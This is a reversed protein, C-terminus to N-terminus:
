LSEGNKDGRSVLAKSAVSRRHEENAKWLRSIFWLVPRLIFRRVLDKLFVSHRIVGAITPSIEYYCSVFVRGAAHQILFKDRFQRLLIVEPAEITGYVATAIFCGSKKATEKAKPALRGHEAAIEFLSSSGFHDLAIRAAQSEVSAPEKDRLYELQPRLSPHGNAGSAYITFLRWDTETLHELCNSLAQAAQANGRMQGFSEITGIQPSFRRIYSISAEPHFYELKDGAWPFHILEDDPGDFPEASMFKVLAGAVVDDTDGFAALASAAYFKLVSGDQAAELAKRLPPQVTSLVVGSCLRLKGIADTKVQISGFQIDKLLPSIDETM